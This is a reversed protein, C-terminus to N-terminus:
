LPHILPMVQADPEQHEREDKPEAEGISKTVLQGDEESSGADHECCSEQRVM